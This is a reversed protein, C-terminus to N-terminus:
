MDHNLQVVSWDSHGLEFVVMRLCIMDSRIVRFGSVCVVFMSLRKVLIRFGGSNRASWFICLM